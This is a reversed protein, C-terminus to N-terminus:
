QWTFLLCFKNSDRETERSRAEAWHKPDWRSFATIIGRRKTQDWWARGRAALRGEPGRTASNIVYHFTNKHLCAATQVGDVTVVAVSVLPGFHTPADDVAPGCVGQQHLYSARGRKSTEWLEEKGVQRIQNNFPVKLTIAFHSKSFVLCEGSHTHSHTHIHTAKDPQMKCHKASCTWFSNSFNGSSLLSSTTMRNEACESGM